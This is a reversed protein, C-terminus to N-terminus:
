KETTKVSGPLTGGLQLGSNSSSLSSMSGNVADSNPLAPESAIFGLIRYQLFHLWNLGGRHWWQETQSNNGQM